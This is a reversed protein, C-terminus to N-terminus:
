RNWREFLEAYRGGRTILEDHTGDEIIRGHDMLIIRDAAMAQDLRHAVVLSTRSRAVASAARELARANDSGAESTAEDMILVPPDLLVIRALSIQQQVEPGLEAAGAGIPTDLGQPLWLEWETSGPSLGVSELAALLTQDSAGPAAMHLDERLTGAFLHVEQSILAVNRATWTDAVTATDVEGVIIEGSTPRQLGAILGALTSKGAGSAGVLATTTGPTLVLDLKELIPAGGPYAYSLDKIQVEPADILDAPELAGANDEGLQALSVARGLSTMANQIEGSFFLVNFVHVELRSVLIVAAVASGVSIQQADILWASLVFCGVMLLTYCITGYLLLRSFLPIRDALAQITNWSTGEMRHRAWSHLKLARITPLGRITDLLLNNRRAEATSMLNTAAPMASVNAKVFPYMLASVVIIVLLYRWDIIILATTTVVLMVVTIGFRVGIASITRVVTDIDKTLRTIVNGTGLELVDPIPARLTATMCARRLEVSLLRARAILFYGGLVRGLSETLLLCGIVSVLIVFARTGGGIWPLENGRFLEVARGLLTSSLTVSLTGVLLAGLFAVTWGVNPRSPLTRVFRWSQKMSAPRLADHTLEM